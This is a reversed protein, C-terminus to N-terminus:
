RWSSVGRICRPVIHAVVLYSSATKLVLEMKVSCYFAVFPPHKNVLERRGAKSLLTYDDIGDVQAIKSIIGDGQYRQPTLTCLSM